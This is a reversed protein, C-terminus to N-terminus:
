CDIFKDSISKNSLNQLNEILISINVHISTIIDRYIIRAWHIQSAKFNWVHYIDM